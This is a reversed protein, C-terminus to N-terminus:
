HKLKKNNLQKIIKKYNIIELFYKESKKLEQKNKIKYDYKDIFTLMDCVQFLRNNVHDFEVIHVYSELRSFCLDIINGLAEQGNDYYVEIVDFKSFYKINNDILKNIERIIERRLKSKNNCYKKDIFISYYNAPIKRAFHYLANFIRIRKDIDFLKYEERKYVLNAFHIMGNFGIDNLRRNLNEIEGNINNMVEYVVFSVGYLMSSKSSFGFDGTEDIYMALKKM